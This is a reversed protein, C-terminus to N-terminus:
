LSWLAEVSLIMPPPADKEPKSEHNLILTVPSSQM